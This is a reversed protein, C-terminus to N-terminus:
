LWTGRPYRRWAQLGGRNRVSGRPRRLSFRSSHSGSTWDASCAMAKLEASRARKSKAKPCVQATWHLRFLTARKLTKLANTVIQVPEDKGIDVSCVFLADANEHKGKSLIKGVVTNTVKAGEAEYGEVKSGTMTMDYCFQKIPEDIEVYDNLWKMSLDM